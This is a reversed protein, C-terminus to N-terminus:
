NKLISVFGRSNISALYDSAEYTKPDILGIMVFSSESDVAIEFYYVKKEAFLVDGLITKWGNGVKTLTQNYNTAKVGKPVEVFENTISRIYLNSSKTSTSIPSSPAETERVKQKISGLNSLM